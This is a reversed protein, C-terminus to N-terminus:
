PVETTKTEGRVALSKKLDYFLFANLTIEAVLEGLHLMLALPVPSFSASM